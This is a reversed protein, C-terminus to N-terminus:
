EYQINKLFGKRQIWSSQTKTYKWALDGRTDAMVSWPEVLILDGPRVWMRKRLKGPIRVLREKGDECQVKMKDGGMMMIVLGYVQNDRPKRVRSIQEEDTM